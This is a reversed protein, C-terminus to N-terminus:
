RHHPQRPTLQCVLLGCARVVSPIAQEADPRAGHWGGRVGRARAATVAAQFIYFDALSGHLPKQTPRHDLDDSFQRAALEFTKREGAGPPLLWEVV